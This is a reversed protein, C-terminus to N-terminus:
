DKPKKDRLSYILGATIATTSLLQKALPGYDVPYGEGRRVRRGTRQRTQTTSAFYVFFAIGLWMAILQKKNM